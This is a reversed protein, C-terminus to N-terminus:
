PRSNHTSLLSFWEPAAPVRNVSFSFLAIMLYASLNIRGRLRHLFYGVRQQDTEYKNQNEGLNSRRM